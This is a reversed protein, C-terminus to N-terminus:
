YGIAFWHIGHTGATSAYVTFSSLTSTPAVNFSPIDTFTGANYSSGIVNLVSTPFAIPFIITNATGIVTSTLVNTGWQLILGSPLKQYGNATKVSAFANNLFATTALKTSNDGLTATTGLINGLTDISLVDQTTSGANGRALKVTGDQVTPVTLVFNNTATTSTGLQVTNVNLQGTM